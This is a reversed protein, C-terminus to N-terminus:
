GPASVRPRRRQRPRRDQTAQTMRHFQDLAARREEPSVPGLQTMASRIRKAQETPFQSLMQRATQTDVSTLLIAVQRTKSDIKEAVM